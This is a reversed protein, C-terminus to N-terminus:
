IKFTTYKIPHRKRNNIKYKYNYCKSCRSGHLLRYISYVVTKRCYPCIFKESYSDVYIPQPPWNEIIPFGRIIDHKM